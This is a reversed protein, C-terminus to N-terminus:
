RLLARSIKDQQPLFGQSIKSSPETVIRTEQSPNPSVSLAPPLSTNAGAAGGPEWDEPIELSQLPFRLPSLKEAMSLLASCLMVSIIIIIFIIRVLIILMIM